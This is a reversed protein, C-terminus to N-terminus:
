CIKNKKSTKFCIGIRYVYGEIFMSVCLFQVKNEQLTLSYSQSFYFNNKLFYYCKLAESCAIVRVNVPSLGGVGAIM